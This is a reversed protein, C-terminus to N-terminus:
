RLQDSRIHCVPSKEVYLIHELQFESSEVRPLDVAYRHQHRNINTFLLTPCSKWTNELYKGPIACHTGPISRKKWTNQSKQFIASYRSFVQFIAFFTSYRPFITLITLIKCTNELYKGPIACKHNLKWTNAKKKWTDRLLNKSQAIGPFFLGIGPFLYYRSFFNFIMSIKCTNSSENLFSHNQHNALWISQIHAEGIFHSM